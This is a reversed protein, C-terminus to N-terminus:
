CRDAGGVRFEDLMTEREAKGIVQLLLQEVVSHERREGEGAQLVTLDTCIHALDKIYQWYQHLAAVGLRLYVNRM